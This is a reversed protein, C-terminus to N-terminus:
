KTEPGALFQILGPNLRILQLLLPALATIAQEELDRGGDAEALAAQRWCVHLLEHLVTEAVGSEPRDGDVSIRFTDLETHGLEGETRVAWSAGRGIRLRYTHPGLRVKRPPKRPQKL